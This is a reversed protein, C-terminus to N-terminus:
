ASPGTTVAEKGGPGNMLPASGNRVGSPPGVIRKRFVYLSWGQYALVVPFL